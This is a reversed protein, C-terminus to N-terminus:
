PIFSPPSSLFVATAGCSRLWGVTWTFRFSGLCLTSPWLFSTPPGFIRRPETGPFPYLLGSFWISIFINADNPIVHLYRLGFITSVWTAVAVTWRGSAFLNLLGFIALWLTTQSFLKNRM